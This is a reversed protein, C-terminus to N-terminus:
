GSCGESLSRCSCRQGGAGCCQGAICCGDCGAGPGATAWRTQLGKDQPAAFVSLRGLVMLKAASLCLFEIAYLVRFAAYWSYSLALLSSRQVSDSASIVNQTFVNVDNMMRAAWAVAGVCSGCAMLATFWGYLRWVRGRDEEEMRRWWYLM